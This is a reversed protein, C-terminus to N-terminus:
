QMELKMLVHLLTMVVAFDAVVFLFTDMQFQKVAKTYFSDVQAIPDEVWQFFLPHRAPLCVVPAAETQGRATNDNRACAMATWEQVALAYFPRQDDRLLRLGARARSNSAQGCTFTRSMQDCCDTGVAWFDVTGSEPLVLEGERDVEKQGGQNWIPQGVIPAACFVNGSRFAVTDRTSIYANEKFYVQGADMYTQGRDAAPNINTYTALDQYTYYSRMHQWYSRDGCLSGAILAMWLCVCTTGLNRMPLSMRFLGRAMLTVVVCVLIGVAPGYFAAKQWTYFRWSGFTFYYSHAFLLTPWFVGGIVAMPQWANQHDRKGLLAKAEFRAQQYAASGWAMPGSPMWM